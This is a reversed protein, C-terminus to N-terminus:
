YMINILKANGVLNYYGLQRLRKENVALVNIGTTWTCYDPLKEEPYYYKKILYDVVIAGSINGMSRFSPAECVALGYKCFQPNAGLELFSHNYKRLINLYETKPVLQGKDNYIRQAAVVLLINNFRKKVELDKLFTRLQSTTSIHVIHVSPVKARLENLYNKLMYYGTVTMMSDPEVFIYAEDIFTHSEKLLNFFSDLRIQEQVFIIKNTKAHLGYSHIYDYAPRNVGSSVVTYKLSIPIGVLRAANDDTTVVIDPKFENVFHIAKRAVNDMQDPKINVTKTRLYFARIDYDFVKRYQYLFDLLGEVQPMTCPHNPSYSNIIAIKVLPKPKDLKKIREINKFIYDQHLKDTIIFGSSSTLLVILLLVVYSLLKSVKKFM